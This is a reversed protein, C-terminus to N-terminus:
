QQSMYQRLREEYQKRRDIIEMWQGKIFRVRREDYGPSLRWGILDLASANFLSNSLGLAKSYSNGLKPMACVPAMNIKFKGLSESDM